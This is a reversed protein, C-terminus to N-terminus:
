RVLGYFPWFTMKEWLACVRGGQVFFRGNFAWKSCWEGWFYRNAPKRYWQWVQLAFLGMTTLGMWSHLSYFHPVPAPVGDVRRDNHFDWVAVFGIAICPAALLHFMTHLLKSWIRRCCRCTRYMLMASFPPFIQNLIPIYAIADMHWWTTSNCTEIENSVNGLMQRRGKLMSALFTMEGFIAVHATNGVTCSKMRVKVWSTFSDLSWSFQICIGSWTQIRKGHFLGHHTLNPITSFSGFSSWDWFVM